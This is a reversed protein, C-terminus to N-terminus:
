KRELFKLCGALAYRIVLLTMFVPFLMFHQKLALSILVFIMILWPEFGSKKIFAKMYHQTTPDISYNHRIVILSACAALLSFYLPFFFFMPSDSTFHPKWDSFWAITACGAFLDYSIADPLKKFFTGLICIISLGIAGYCVTPKLIIMQLFHNTQVLYTLGLAIATFIYM